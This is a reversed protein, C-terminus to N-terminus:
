HYPSWRSRCTSVCEKGLRREASRGMHPAALMGTPLVPLNRAKLIDLMARLNRDSQAPALGRLMDNAGLGLLVLDPKRPLGDLTFALRQLGGQTTEGSVGANRVEVADGRTRLAQELEYPFSENQAVGYGAYLSDGFALILKRDGAPAINSQEPAASIATNNQAPEGSCAMLMQVLIMCGAYTPWNRAM